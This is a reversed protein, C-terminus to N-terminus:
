PLQFMVHNQEQKCSSPQAQGALVSQRHQQTPHLDHDLQLVQLWLLQCGIDDVGDALGQMVLPPDPIDCLLSGM